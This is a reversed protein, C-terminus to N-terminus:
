MSDCIMTTMKTIYVFSAICVIDVYMIKEKRKTYM